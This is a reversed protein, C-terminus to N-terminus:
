ITLDNESKLGVASQLVKEFTAAATAVVAAVLTAIISLGIFGAPDDEESHFLIIFIGAGVIAFSLIIACQKIRKLTNVSNPSFVKNKGIYHLLKFAQYLAVFFASSFVYVYLILPDAYISFLDLNTARGETLPFWILLMLTVLGILMIVAQLFIISKKNM